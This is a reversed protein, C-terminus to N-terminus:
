PKLKFTLQLSFAAKTPEGDVRYPEFRWKYAVKLIEEHFITDCETIKVDYPKGKKDIYLRVNCQAEQIQLKRAAEPLKPDKM